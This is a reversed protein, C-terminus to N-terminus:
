SRPGYARPRNSAFRRKIEKSLIELERIIGAEAEKPAVVIFGNTQLEGSDTIMVVMKATSDRQYVKYYWQFEPAHTPETVWFDPRFGRTEMFTSIADFEKGHTTVRGTPHPSLRGALAPSASLGLMLAATLIVHRLLYTPKM